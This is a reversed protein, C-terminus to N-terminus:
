WGIQDLKEKELQYRHRTAPVYLPKQGQYQSDNKLSDLSSAILAELKQRVSEDVSTLYIVLFRGPEHQPIAPLYAEMTGTLNTHIKRLSGPEGHFSFSDISQCSKNSSCVNIDRTSTSGTPHHTNNGPVGARKGTGQSSSCTFSMCLKM